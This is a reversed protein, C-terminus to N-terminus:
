IKKNQKIDFGGTTVGGDAGGQENQAQYEIKIKTFNFSVSANPIDASGGLQVSSILVDSMTVKLFVLKTGGSKVQELKAEPIHEGTCCKVLLDPVSKDQLDAKGTGMGGGLRASGVNSGGFSYSELHIWGPHKDDKAEGNVGTIKLYADFAM